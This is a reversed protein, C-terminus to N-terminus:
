QIGSLIRRARRKIGNNRSKEVVMQLVGRRKDKSIGSVDESTIQVMASYAEEVVASDEAFTTLLELASSSPAEGLVAIALRKEEPRKIYSLLDVIRTVKQENSLKNTGRVYQFYGRLGLVQHSMKEASTALSLLVRGAESDQPWNNPWNSLIRVAEDQAPSEDGDIASKVTALAEPGGIIALARLGIMQLENDRSQTLPRLHPICKVGCRGSIALLAKRIGTRETSNNTEQLLKVLDATQQEQGIIGITEVAAGRIGANTDNLSPVVAPLAESIQRQGALEILVQQLKGEAQPLRAILDADVDKGPLRVLTEMAAQELEADDETVAELLIPVCTVDGLRILLNIATIRLDKSSSKAAEHITPKVASDNRDALALLLLPRRDTSLRDLESALAKTVDRGPLERAARLGIGLKEKDESQLQEILLPVGASKRGLIVGRIAELHRQEPVEAQRVRDYLMIATATKKNELLWEACLICGEAVASRVGAPADALSQMLAKAADEGGIHGLAAAAASVVGANSDDLKQVLTNVARVDRRVSVSNIVGILLRGELTGLADRLAADAAPGPIAELTIRAWSSLEKDALLPALASVAQETGYIALRKCTIAKESKPADSQLVAILDGETMNTAPGPIDQAATLGSAAVIIVIICWTFYRKKKIM